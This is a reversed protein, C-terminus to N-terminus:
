AIPNADQVVNKRIETKYVTALGGLALFWASGLHPRWTYYDLMSLCIIGLMLWWWVSGRKRTLAWASIAIWIVASILGAERGMRFPVNHLGRHEVLGHPFLDPAQPFSLRIKIDRIADDLLTSDINPYGRYTLDTVTILLIAVVILGLLWRWDFRGNICGALIMTSYVMLAWRSQSSGIALLLLLPVWIPYRKYISIIGALVLLGSAVNENFTLGNAPGGLIFLGHILAFGVLWPFVREDALFMVGVAPLIWFISSVTLEWNGNGWYVAGPVALLNGIVLVAVIVILSRPLTKKDPVLYYATLSLGLGVGGILILMSNISAMFM